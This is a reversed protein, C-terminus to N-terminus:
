RPRAFPWLHRLTWRMCGITCLRCHMWGLRLNDRVPRFHSVGGEAADRYRVPVPLNVTAVGARVLRVAIDVDFEMGDGFGDLRATADLPYIRFGILGDKIVDRGGVELAVWFHTLKRAFLRARPATQDYEPYALILSAPANTAAALFRPVAAMEHQGDADIQFAHSFGLERAREFGTRCAAGKGRNHDHRIVDALGDRQLATCAAQGEPGSGDDVVIVPLDHARATTVVDRVTRPNDLTPIVACIKM